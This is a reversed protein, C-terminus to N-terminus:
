VHEVRRPEHRAPVGAAFPDFAVRRGFDDALMERAEVGVLILGGTARRSRQRNCALGAAIFLFAPADALITREEPGAHHDVRDAIFVALQEAVGLYGAIDGLAALRLHLEGPNLPRKGFRLLHIRKALEGAAHRVVEVVQEHHHGAVDLRQLRDGCLIRFGRAGGLRDLEGSLAASSQRPLQQRERAPLPEIRLRDLERM